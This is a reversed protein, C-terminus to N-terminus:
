RRRLTVRSLEFVCGDDSRSLLASRGYGLEGTKLEGSQSFINSKFTQCGKEGTIKDKVNWVAVYSFIKGPDSEVYITVQSSSLADSFTTSYDNFENGKVELGAVLAMVRDSPSSCVLRCVYRLSYQENVEISEIVTTPLKIPKSESNKSVVWGTYFPYGSLKWSSDIRVGPYSVLGGSVTRDQPVWSHGDSMDMLVSAADLKQIAAKLELIEKTVSHLQRNNTTSVFGSAFIQFVLSNGLVIIAVLLPLWKPLTRLRLLTLDSGFLVIISIFLFPIWQLALKHSQYSTINAASYVLLCSAGLVILTFGLLRGSFRKKLLFSLILFMCAIGLIAPSLVLDLIGVLFDGYYGDVVPPFGLFQLYNPARIGIDLKNGFQDRFLRPIFEGTGLALFSFPLLSALLLLAKSGMVRLERILAFAFTVAFIPLLGYTAISPYTETALAVLGAILSWNFLQKGNAKGENSSVLLYMILLFIGSFIIQNLAWWGLLTLYAFNCFLLISIAVSFKISLNSFRAMLAAAVSIIVLWMALLVAQGVQWVELNFLSSLASILVVGTGAHDWGFGSPVEPGDNFPTSDYKQNIQGDWGVNKVHESFNLYFFMDGSSTDFSTVLPLGPYSLYSQLVFFSAAFLSAAGTFVITKRLNLYHFANGRLLDRSSSGSVKFRVCFSIIAIAALLPLLINGLNVKYIVVTMGYFFAAGVPLAILLQELDFKKILLTSGLFIFLLLIGFILGAYSVTSFFTSVVREIAM